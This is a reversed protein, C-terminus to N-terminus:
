SNPVYTEGHELMELISQDTSKKGDTAINTPSLPRNNNRSKQWEAHRKEFEKQFNVKIIDWVNKGVMEKTAYDKAKQMNEANPKLDNYLIYTGILENYEKQQEPKSEFDITIESKDDLAIKQSVKLPQKSIESFPIEWSRALAEKQEKQTQEAVQPDAVQIAKFEALKGAKIQNGAIELKAAAVKFERSETDADPDFYASFSDHLLDEVMEPKDKFEPNKELFDMKWLDQASPNGWLLKQFLPVKEPATENLVELKSYDSNKHSIPPPKKNLEEIKQEYTKKENLYTEKEKAYNTEVEKYKTEWNVPTDVPTEGAPPTDAPPPTEKNGEVASAPMGFDGIQHAANVEAFTTPEMNIQEEPM